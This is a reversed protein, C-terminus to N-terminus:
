SVSFTPFRVATADQVGRIDRLSSRLRRQSDAGLEAFSVWNDPAQGQVARQVQRSLRLGTLFRYADALSAAGTRSLSGGAAAAELRSVTTGATAGVALAYLRALLVVAATGGRKVDVRGDTLHLRAFAGLPPRFTVAARAMQVLFPGRSGGVALIGPLVEVSLPGHVARVDLFVEAELLAQPRPEEVWGRFLHQFDPLPRAWNTAMYGGACRPMGAQALGAVVADALRAFYRAVEDQEDAPVPGYALASDQDSSLVQEGRGHSGLALWAYPCPPPGVDAEALVLLRRTLADNAAAIRQTVDLPDVGEALLSSTLAVVEDRYHGLPEPRDLVRLEEIVRLPGPALRVLDM